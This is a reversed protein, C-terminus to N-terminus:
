KLEELAQEVETGELMEFAKCAMKWCLVEQPHQARHFRYSEPTNYGMMGYLERALANATNVIQENTRGAGVEKLAARVSEFLGNDAELDQYTQPEGEELLRDKKTM